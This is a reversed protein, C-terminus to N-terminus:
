LTSQFNTLSFFGFDYSNLSIIKALGGMSFNRIGFLM